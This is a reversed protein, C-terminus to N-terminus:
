RMNCANNSLIYIDKVNPKGSSLWANIADHLKGDGYEQRLRSAEHEDIGHRILTDVEVNNGGETSGEEPNRQTVNDKKPNRQTVNYQSPANLTDHPDHSPVNLTDGEPILEYRKNPTLILLKRESQYKTAKTRKGDLNNNERHDTVVYLKGDNLPILLGSEVLAALDSEAAQCVRMITKVGDVFGEDDTKMGMRFYLAQATLPLENFEDGDVVCNSFMRKSAM